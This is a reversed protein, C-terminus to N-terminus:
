LFAERHSDFSLILCKTPIPAPKDVVLIGFWVSIELTKPTKKLFGVFHLCGCILLACNQARNTGTGSAICFYNTFFSNFIPRLFAV